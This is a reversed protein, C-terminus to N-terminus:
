DGPNAQGEQVARSKRSGSAATAACPSSTASRSCATPRTEPRWNLQVQGSRIWEAMDTRSINFGAAAIKDFRMSAATIRVLNEERSPAALGALPIREITVSRSGVSSLELQILPV